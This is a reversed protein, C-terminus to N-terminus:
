PRFCVGFRINFLIFSQHRSRISRRGRPNRRTPGDQDILGAATRHGGLRELHRDIGGGYSNTMRNMSSWGSAGTPWRGATTRPPAATSVCPARRPRLTGNLHLLLTTKGCGNAGSLALRRGREVRLDLGQLEAAGGPYDYRLGEAQLVHSESLRLTAAFIYVRGIDPDFRPTGGNGSRRVCSRRQM